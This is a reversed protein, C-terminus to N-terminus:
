GATVPLQVRRISNEHSSEPSGCRAINTNIPSMLNEALSEFMPRGLSM